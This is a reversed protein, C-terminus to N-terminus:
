SCKSINLFLPFERDRERKRERARERERKDVERSEGKAIERERASARSEMRAVSFKGDRSSRDGRRMERGGRGKEWERKREAKQGAGEGEEKEGERIRKEEKEGGREVIGRAVSIIEDRSSSGEGEGREARRRTVSIAEM